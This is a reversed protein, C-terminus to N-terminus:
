RVDTEIYPDRDEETHESFILEILERIQLHPIEMYQHPFTTQPNLTEGIVQGYFLSCGDAQQVRKQRSKQREM